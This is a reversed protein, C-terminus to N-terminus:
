GTLSAAASYLLMKGHIAGVFKTGFLDSEYAPLISYVGGMVSVAAVTSACFCYLPVSSGTFIVNDVLTPLACYLPISGLTFFAFTFKRGVM